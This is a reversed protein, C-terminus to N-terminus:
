EARSALFPERRPLPGGMASMESVVLVAQTRSSVKLTRLIAAVHDKITEDSLNLARAILKNSQGRLLLALVESQRRTLGLRALAAEAGASSGVSLSWASPTRDGAHWHSLAPEESRMIAAPVYVGGSLVMRLAQLLAENGSQKSVFGMAGLDIARMVDVRRESAAVIVVAMSPYAARLESLLEFGNDNGIRLDLLALDFEPGTSLAERAAQATGVSTVVVEDALARVVMQLASLILPHDDILLVNM